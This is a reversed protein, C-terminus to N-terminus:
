PWFGLRLVAKRVQVSLSFDALYSHLLPIRDEFCSISKEADHVFIVNKTIDNKTIVKKTNDKCRSM